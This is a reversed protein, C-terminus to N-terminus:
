TSDFLVAPGFDATEVEEHLLLEMVASANQRADMARM